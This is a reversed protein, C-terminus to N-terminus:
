STVASLGHSVDDAKVFLNFAGSFFLVGDNSFPFQQGDPVNEPAGV